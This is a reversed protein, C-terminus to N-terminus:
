APAAAAQRQRARGCFLHFFRSFVRFFAFFRSFVRFFGGSHIQPNKSKLWHWRVPVSLAVM